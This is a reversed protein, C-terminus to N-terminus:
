GDREGSDKMARVVLGAVPMGSEMRLEARVVYWQLRAGALLRELYAQTHQYRGHTAIQYESGDAPHVAEELTFILWGGRRLAQAAVGVFEDLAGFYVLTDASIIVDFRDHLPRLYTTLESKVLEDYVRREDARALMKSSLDVGTLRRAYPAVLPGCLGTGCGVDLIDLRRAPEIGTDALMAAVIQPARYSLQGLKADFSAAFDDFAREVYADAARAPVDRGTCAALLHKAVPNEPEEQLWKEYIAIAKDIDGLTCYSMALLRHAERYEPKLTTVKCYCVVAEKARNTAALLIGLNNYADIHEPNLEIAKRYAAEAEDVRGTARLLVGLNNYANAHGPNLAIAREYAAIAEPLQGLARYIIGLNSYCDARDPLIALSREILAVADESRGQQHALMGAYHLVDPHEPAAEMLRRYVDAAEDLHGEKQFLIAIGMAEEFTVLREAPIKTYDKV